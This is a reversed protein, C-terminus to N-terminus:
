CYVYRDETISRLSALVVRTHVRPYDASEATHSSRSRLLKYQVVAACACSGHCDWWLRLRLGSGVSMWVVGTLEARRDM